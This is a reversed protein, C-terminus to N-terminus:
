FWDANHGLVISVMASPEFCNSALTLSEVGQHPIGEQTKIGVGLVFRPSHIVEEVLFLKGSGRLKVTDGKRLYITWDPSNPNM